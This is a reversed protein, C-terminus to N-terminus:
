PQCTRCPSLGEALPQDRHDYRRYRDPPLKRVTPCTPRHFRFSGPRAVYFPEPDHPLSWLGVDDAMAARQDALLRAIEPRKLDTDNFLYVYGLGRRIIAGNVFLTDDVFLYGLLRGYHDRRRGAFEIRATKGGALSDLFRRAVDYLPAEREPTDIALLRLRDGGLLEVTDGDIVRIVQFRDGPRREPGIEEVLRFAIVVAILALLATWRILRRRPSRASDSRRPM